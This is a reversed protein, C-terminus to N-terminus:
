EEKAEAQPEQQPKAVAIPFTGSIEGKLVPHQSSGMQKAATPVRLTLFQFLEVVSILGDDDNDASGKLAQCLFHTFLGMGLSRSEM